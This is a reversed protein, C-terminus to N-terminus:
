IDDSREGRLCALVALVRRHSDPNLDLGLKLFIQKVHAEVTRETVHLRGAIARNSLGEALLGLVERERATLEALPDERRRRGLLRAVITPDVVTERDAIRRLADVLVAGDFVRQKLLYGVGEPHEELLRMAYSPEVYQSLLLVGIAPHDARIRQTAVLGEDTHTPPMRIDVVAADPQEDRVQRLLGEADQAQAVVEIGADELLRVIGERTLMVDDAVVVRV